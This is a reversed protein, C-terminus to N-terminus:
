EVVQSQFKVDSRQDASLQDAPADDDTLPDAGDVLREVAARGYRARARRPRARGGAPLPRESAILVLNGGAPRRRRRPVAVLAVDAFADCCRRPRPACCTRARRLRDRQAPLARRAAARAPHRAVFEARPSTGPSRAAASRTASSSTPRTAPEDRLTVRADGVRVALDRAPGCGSSTAPSTSSSRRRGRARALALRAADRRPLAAAHLRRRRRLRADLPAGAPRLADIADGMWRTYAFELHRPDALDVYSHRLDDLRLVRGSPAGTTPRRGARLLLRERDHLPTGAAAAAAALLSPAAPSRRSRAARSRASRSPRPAIGALVLLAGLGIVTSACPCCRSSCSAPASRAPSRARRRGRRSGGSSRGARRRPRRAAAQRRGAHGRQAGGGAPLLAFLAIRSRAATAAARSAEGFVRVLPVTAM